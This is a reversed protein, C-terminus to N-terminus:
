SRSLLNNLDPEKDEYKIKKEKIAKRIEDPTMQLWRTIHKCTTRSYDWKPYLVAKYEPSIFNYYPQFAVISDYSQLYKGNVGLNIEACNRKLITVLKSM